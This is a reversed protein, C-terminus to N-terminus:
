GGCGDTDYKLKLHGERGATKENIKAAAKETINIEM